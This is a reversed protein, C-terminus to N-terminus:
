SQEEVSTAKLVPQIYRYFSAFERCPPAQSPDVKGTGAERRERPARYTGMQLAGCLIHDCNNPRLGVPWGPATEGNREGCRCASAHKRSEESVRVRAHHLCCRRQCERTAPLAAASEAGAWPESTGGRCKRTSGSRCSSPRLYMTDDTRKWSELVQEYHKGAHRHM